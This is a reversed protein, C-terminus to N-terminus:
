GRHHNDSAWEMLRSLTALRPWSLQLGVTSASLVPCSSVPTLTGPEPCFHPFLSACSIPALLTAGWPSPRGVVLGSILSWVPSWVLSWVSKGTNAQHPYDCILDLGERTESKGPAGVGGAAAAAAKGKELRKYRSLEILEQAHGKGEAFM